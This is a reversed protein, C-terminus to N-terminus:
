LHHAWELYINGSTAAVTDAKVDILTSDIPNKSRLKDEIDRAANEEFHTGRKNTVIVDVDIDQFYRDNSVDLVDLGKSKVYETYWKEGAKGIKNSNSFGIDNFENM